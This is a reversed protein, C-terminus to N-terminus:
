AKDIFLERNKWMYRAGSIVTLALMFFFLAGLLGTLITLAAAPLNPFAKALLALCIWLMQAVTKLKGWFDAALVLNKGAALLRMSTVLFERSLILILSVTGLVGYEPLLCCMAATVLLKDALPDMLKGFDTILGHKRAIHGDLTDTLSAVAFVVLALVYGQPALPLYFCLLFAPIM